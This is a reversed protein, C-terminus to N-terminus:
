FGRLTGREHNKKFDLFTKKIGTDLDILPYWGLKNIRSCDLKKRPTGNPKSKDWIIEGTFGIIKSINLVLKRISIEDLSGVNLWPTIGKISDNVSPKWNELVFICASALDDVYLFERLPSGDGWCEIHDQSNLKAEYLKRILAPLVHSNNLNYNDGPGYINSPMVSIADLYQEKRAYECLKIGTIKALAYAENTPELAGELISEEKIPQNAFKPYICSSGLFLVRKVNHLKSIEILNIQIRLNELLFEFPKESNAFIGGVKAAAIIVVSPKNKKFWENVESYSFFNLESKSPSYIIGGSKKGYGKKLLERYIASGVMGNGGAILFKENTDIYM